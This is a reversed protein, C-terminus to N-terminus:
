AIALYIYTDGSANVDNNAAANVLNVAFGSSDPDIYDETTIENGSGQFMFLSDNGAVIGRETDFLHWTGGIGTIRRILVLRAGSSFGCDITQSTGNGTYTGIDCIGPVSAFLFAQMPQGSQNVSNADGVTFVTDTPTTDNWANDIDQPVYTRSIRLYHTNGVTKNYVYGEHIQARNKVWMFEPVAGLNHEVTRGAVGDGTYTVVDFFGPARKFAVGHMNLGSLGASYDMTVEFIDQKDYNALPAVEAYAGFPYIAKNTLRNSVYFTYGSTIPRHWAMDAPFGVNFDTTVTTSVQKTVAM